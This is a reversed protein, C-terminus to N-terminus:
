YFVGMELLRNSILKKIDIRLPRPVWHKNTMPARAVVSDDSKTLLLLFFFLVTIIQVISYNGMSLMCRRLDQVCDYYSRYPPSLTDNYLKLVNIFKKMAEGYQGSELEARGLRYTM